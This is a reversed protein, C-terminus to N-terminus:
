VHARGIQDAEIEIQKPLGRREGLAMRLRRPQQLEVRERVLELLHQELEDTLANLQLLRATQSHREALAATKRLLDLDLRVEEAIGPRRVKVVVVRGTKLLGAHIQAVSASALPREDISAFQELGIAREIVERIPGFPLPPVDDVLKELEDIYVDPLLDPRSSLLQGFKVFTTGLEELAERFRIAQERTAPRDGVVGVERLVRLLHSRRAARTLEITRRVKSTEAM